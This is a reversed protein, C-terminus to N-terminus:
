DAHHTAYVLVRDPVATGWCRRCGNCTRDERNTAVTAPCVKSEPGFAQRVLTDPLVRSAPGSMSYTLGVRAGPQHRLITNLAVTQGGELKGNRHCSIQVALNPPLREGSEVLSAVLAGMRTPLWHLVAPTRRCVEFVARAYDRHFLDGSDHWRFFAVPRGLLQMKRLYGRVCQDMADEPVAEVPKLRLIQGTIWGIWDPLRRTAILSRLYELRLVRNVQAAVNTRYFGDLAYCNACTEDIQPCSAVPPLSWTVGTKSTGSLALFAGLGRAKKAKVDEALRLILDAKKNGDAPEEPM